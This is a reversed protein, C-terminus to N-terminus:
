RASIGNLDSPFLREGVILIVARRFYVFYYNGKLITLSGQYYRTELMSTMVSRFYHGRTHNPKRSIFALFLNFSVFFLGMMKGQQSVMRGKFRM